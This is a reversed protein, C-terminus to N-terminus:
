VWKHRQEYIKPQSPAGGDTYAIQKEPMSAWALQHGHVPLGGLHYATHGPLVDPNHDPDFMPIIGNSSPWYTARQSKPAPDGNQHDALYSGIPEATTDWTPFGAPDPGSMRFRQVSVSTVLGKQQRVNRYYNGHADFATYGSLATTMRKATLIGNENLRLLTEFNHSANSLVAGVVGSGPFSFAVMQTALDLGTDKNVACPLWNRVLQWSHKGAKQEPDGPENPVSYDVNFELFGSPGGFVRTPNASPVSSYYDWPLYMIRDIYKWSSGVRSFHLIRSTTFDGVWLDGNDAASVWSQFPSNLGVVHMRAINPGPDLWFTDNTVTANCSGSAEYGGHRGLESIIRNTKPDFEKIQQSNGGDAIFISGTITNVSVSVPNSLDGVPTSLHNSRGVDSVEYLKDNVGDGSIVWLNNNTDFAMQQPNPVSLSGMAAGTMKDWLNVTNTSAVPPRSQIEYQGHGTALLRGNHQVAIGTIAASPFTSLDVVKVDPLGIPPIVGNNRFTSNIKPFSPFAAGNPFRYYGGQPTFAIVGQWPSPTASYTQFGFYVLKGDTASFMFHQYTNFILKTLPTVEANPSKEDFVAAAYGSENYGDAAYAKGKIFALSRIFSPVVGDWSRFSSWSSETNGILGEWQYEVNNYGLKSQTPEPLPKRGQISTEM